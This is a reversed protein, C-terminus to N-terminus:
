NSYTFHRYSSQELELLFMSPKMLVREREAYSYESTLYSVTLEEEARTVAVYFLRREEELYSEDYTAKVSPFKDQNCGLLFVYKFELGKSRHITTLVIKSEDRKAEVQDEKAYVEELLSLDELFTELDNYKFSYDIFSRVDDLRDSYDEYALKMYGEYHEVLFLNMLEQVNDMELSKRMMGMFSEFAAKGRKVFSFNTTTRVMDRVDSDEVILRDLITRLTKAGVGELQGLTRAWALEDSMNFQMRLFAIMDKIHKKEFFKMGSRLEYPVGQKTLELEIDKAFFHNRYLIAIDHLDVGEAILEKIKGVIYSAETTSDPFKVISPAKGEGRKPKLLLEFREKNNQISSNALDLIGSKSRYNFAVEYLRCGEFRDKFSLINSIDAGRWGYISQNPDGVVMINKEEGVLLNVIQQQIYNVDQFEDVLVFRFQNQLQKRVVADKEMILKWYLLIDDFDVVNNKIKLRMYEQAILKLEEAVGVHDSFQNELVTLIPVGKNISLSIVEKILRDKPLLINEKKPDVSARAVKMLAKVDDDDMITFTTKLGVLSAYKRVVRVGVHHFTGCTLGRQNSGVLKEIRDKMERASANTFTMMLIEDPRIGSYIMNAVRYVIVRTKGSGAGAVVLSPGYLDKAPLVQDSDLEKLFDADPRVNSVEGTVSVFGDSERMEDGGIGM